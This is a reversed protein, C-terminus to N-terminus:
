TSAQSYKVVLLLLRIWYMYYVFATRIAAIEALHAARNAPKSHSQRPLIVDTHTVSFLHTVAGNKAQTCVMCGSSPARRSFWSTSWGCATTVRAQRRRSESLRDISYTSDSCYSIKLWSYNLAWNISTVAVHNYLVIPEYVPRRSTVRDFVWEHM